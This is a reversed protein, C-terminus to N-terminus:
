HVPSQADPNAVTLRVVASNATPPGSTSQATVLINDRGYKQATAPVALGVHILKSAHSGISLEQPEINTVFRKPDMVSIKFVRAPGFNTVEFVAARSSGPVIEDFDLKPLVRVTEAHFLPGYFRQYRMGKMDQGSLALRFPVSPLEVEGTAELFDGDSDTVKLALRHLIDGRESVFAFETTRTDTASLSVQMTAREGAIPQGSIRFLGEHGPRGGVEVFKADIFFIGSQAKAELWYTGTGKVAARWIGAGPKDVTVIRGCNLESDETHPSGVVVLRGDPSRLDLSSGKTDTSFTFTIRQTSSDIPIDFAQAAGALKASAWLVSSVNERTSERMLQMAKVAESRQLFLPVGGTENATHIYAPDAPGCQDPGFSHSPNQQGAAAASVACFVSLLFGGSWFLSRESIM